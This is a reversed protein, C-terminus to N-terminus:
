SLITQFSLHALTQFFLIIYLLIIQSYITSTRRNRVKMSLCFPLMSSYDSSLFSHLCALQSCILPRTRPSGIDVRRPAGTISVLCLFHHWKLPELGLGKRKPSSRSRAREFALSFRASSPDLPLSLMTKAFGHHPSSLRSVALLIGSPSSNLAVDHSWLAM